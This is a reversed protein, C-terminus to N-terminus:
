SVLEDPFYAKSFFNLNSEAVVKQELLICMKVFLEIIFFYEEGSEFANTRIFLLERYLIIFVILLPM